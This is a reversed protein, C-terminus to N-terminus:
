NHVAPYWGLAEDISPLCVMLQAVDGTRFVIESIMVKSAIIFIVLIKDVINSVFIEIFIWDGQYGRSESLEKGNGSGELMVTCNLHRHGSSHLFMHLTCHKSLLLRKLWAASYRQLSM